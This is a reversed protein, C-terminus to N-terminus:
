ETNTQLDGKSISSIIQKSKDKKERIKILLIGYYPGWM